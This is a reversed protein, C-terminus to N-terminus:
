DVPLMYEILKGSGSKILMGQDVLIALDRKATAKSTNNLEQYETSTLRKTTKLHELAKTQRNNLEISLKNQQLRKSITLKFFHPSSADFEPEQLNHQKLEEALRTTGSGWKEIDGTYYFAEAILRNHPISKHPKTLDAVTLAPPLTGANWIEVHDDYLRISTDTGIKYDRHCIANLVGERLASLPYEWEQGRTSLNGAELAANTIIFKLSLRAKFWSMAQDLQEFLPGDFEIDDIILTQTKFRGVKLYASPFFRKVNTGFLLIAARTPKGDVLLELKELTEQWPDSTSVTRRGIQNIKSLFAAILKEDLDRLGSGEEVRMSTLIRPQMKAQIKQAWEELTNAGVTVGIIKGNNRVGVLLTGGQANAFAGISELAENSFSEKLELTESESNGTLKALNIKM